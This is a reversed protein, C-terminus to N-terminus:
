RGEWEAIASMLCLALCFEDASVYMGEAGDAYYFYEDYLNRYQHLFYLGDQILLSREAARRYIESPKM